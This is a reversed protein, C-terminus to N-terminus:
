TLPRQKLWLDHLHLLSDTWLRHVEDSTTRGIIAVEFTSLDLIGRLIFVAREAPPLRPITRELEDTALPATEQSGQDLAVSVAYRLLMLPVRNNGTERSDLLFAEFADQAATAAKQKDGLFCDCFTFALTRWRAHCARIDNDSWETDMPTFADHRKALDLAGREVLAVFLM